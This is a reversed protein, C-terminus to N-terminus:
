RMICKDFIKRDEPMICVVIRKMSGRGTTSSIHACPPLIKGACKKRLPRRHYELRHSGTPVTNYEPTSYAAVRLIMTVLVRVFTPITFLVNPHRSAKCRSGANYQM